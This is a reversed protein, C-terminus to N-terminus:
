QRRDWGHEANNEVNDDCLLLFILEQLLPLLLLGRTLVSALRLLRKGHSEETGELLYM